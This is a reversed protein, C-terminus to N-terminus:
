AASEEGLQAHWWRQCAENCFDLSLGTPLIPKGCHGCRPGNAPRALNVIRSVAHAVGLSVIPGTM